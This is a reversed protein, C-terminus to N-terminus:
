TNNTTNSSLFNYKDQFSQTKRQFASSLVPSQMNKRKETSTFLFLYQEILRHLVSTFSKLIPHINKEEMVKKKEKLHLKPAKDTYGSFLEVEVTNYKRNKNSQRNWLDTLLFSSNSFDLATKVAVRRHNCLVSYKQKKQLMEQM